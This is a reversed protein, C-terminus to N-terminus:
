VRERERSREDVDIRRGAALCLRAAPEGPPQAREAVVDDLLRDLAAAGVDERRDVIRLHHEGRVEIAHRREKRAPDLIAPQEAAARAIRLPDQRRLDRRGLPQPSGALPADPQQEDDALLPAAVARHRRVRNGM